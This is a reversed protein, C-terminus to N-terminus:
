ERDSTNLLRLFVKIMVLVIVLIANIEQIPNTKTPIKGKSSITLIALNTKGSGPPGALMTIVSKEYGGHLWKNFDYSGTSIKDAGM